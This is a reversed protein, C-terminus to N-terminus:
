RVGGWKVFTARRLVPTFQFRASRRARTRTSRDGTALRAHISVRIIAGMALLGRRGDCSPRSNFSRSPAPSAACGPRGDCSPRSNFRVRRVATDSAALDGTALRAHISVAGGPCAWFPKHRGDCSPRSNFSECARIYSTEGPRGDCSPRSNFRWM